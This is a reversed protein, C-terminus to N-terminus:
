TDAPSSPPSAAPAEPVAKPPAPTPSPAREAAPASPSPDPIALLQDGEEATPKGELIEEVVGILRSPTCSVKLLAKQVRAGVVAANRALDEMYSNSLIVVPLDALKRESCIYRLVEVGSLRPMLLDLVMLDPKSARLAGIAAMGDEATDVHFGHHSLGGRYLRLVLADDDVLLVRKM